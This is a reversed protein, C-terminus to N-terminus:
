SANHIDRVFEYEDRVTDHVEMMSMQQASADLINFSTKNERPLGEVYLTEMTEEMILDEVLCVNEDFNM